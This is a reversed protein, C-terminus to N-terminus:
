IKFPKGMKSIRGNKLVRFAVYEGSTFVGARSHSKILENVSKATKELCPTRKIHGTRQRTKKFIIYRPM